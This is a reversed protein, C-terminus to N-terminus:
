RYTFVPEPMGVVRDFDSPTFDQPYDRNLPLYFPSMPNYYPEAEFTDAGMGGILEDAVGDKGGNLYDNGAAGDLFDLGNGGYLSDNGGGGHLVDKGDGGDLIDANGGGYLADDGAGGYVAARVSTLNQFYDDGAGGLYVIRSVQSANFFQAPQIAGDITEQVKLFTFYGIRVNSVIASDNGSSHLIVLEGGSIVAPVCRVELDELQPTFSHRVPNTPKPAHAFIRSLLSFM